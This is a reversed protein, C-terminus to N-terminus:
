RARTHWQRTAGAAAIDHRLTADHRCSMAFIEILPMLLMYFPMFIAADAAEFLMPAARPM